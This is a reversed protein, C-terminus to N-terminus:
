AKYVLNLIRGPVYIIKVPADTARLRPITSRALEVAEEQEANAAIDITGRTKGDLQVAITVLSAACLAEDYEPWPAHSVFGLNGMESWMEEATHPAFPQLLRAFSNFFATPIHSERLAVNVLSMFRSIATNLNLTEIDGTVARITRHLERELERGLKADDARRSRFLTWLRDLFRATGRMGSSNWLSSDEVPGMFMEYLRLADAGYQAIVREPPVGNCKSKSMKEIQARVKEGTEKVVYEDPKEPDSGKDVEEPYYYRGSADRYSTAHVMGQNFLRGFPEPQSVVKLDFLVKHWFRAYLLHLTAHEAGGVYLDVPMWHKERSPACFLANNKPDLFRLYYWCSGAWQPMTNTERKWKAGNVDVYLWSDPAKGLPSVPETANDDLSRQDALDIKPLVVPLDAEDVLRIEGRPGHLIPFPEGWYRQRSFLWDRLKYNIQPHGHGSTALWRIVSKKAEATPLGDLSLDGATSNINRGADVFAQGALATFQANAIRAKFRAFTDIEAPALLASWLTDCQANPAPGDQGSGALADQLAVSYQSSEVSAARSLFRALLERWPGGALETENANQAFWRAAYVQEAVVVDRLPISFTQAFEFDREDHSPVAMVAGTGYGGVIYDSTWIPIIEGTAPNRANLGAPVGTRGAGQRELREVDSTNRAKEAYVRLEESGPSKLIEDILPHEPAIVMYTVGFITDPRTTFVELAGDRDVLPFNITAGESRGIWNRQMRKIPEPWDVLALDDLLRDAYATIRLMWQRMTRRVVPDGTEVYKGDLVEENALVTQLAPCWNVTMEETYALGREFLKCFIWQTWRYYGPDSTAIERSWDYSLGVAQLQERFAAVNRATVEEPTIGEKQAQRETPLGFSDWGMPHLVDFGRARKYRSVVDSAVYGKLHGVHLGKGSPYPFMDLVYYKPRDSSKAAFASEHAWASQWKAEIESPNYV